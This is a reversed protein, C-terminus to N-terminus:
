SEFGFTSAARVGIEASVHENGICDRGLEKMGGCAGAKDVDQDIAVPLRPRYAAMPESGPQPLAVVFGGLSGQARTFDPGRDIQELGVRLKIAGLPRDM